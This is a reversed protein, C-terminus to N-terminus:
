MQKLDYKIVEWTLMAPVCASIMEDSSFKHINQMLLDIWGLNM